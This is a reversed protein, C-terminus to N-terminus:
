SPSAAVETCVRAHTRDRSGCRFDRRIVDRQAVRANLRVWEDVSRVYTEAYMDYDQREEFPSNLIPNSVEVPTM